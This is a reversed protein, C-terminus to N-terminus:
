FGDTFVGNELVTFGKREPASLQNDDLPIISKTPQSSLPLIYTMNRIITDPKPNVEMPLVRDIESRDILSIFYYPSPKIRPKTDLWYDNIESDTLGLKKWLDNRLYEELKSGEIIFGREPRKFDNRLFEYPIYRLKQGDLATLTGDPSALVNWSKKSLFLSSSLIPSKVEVSVQTQKQPYLYIYPSEMVGAIYFDTCRGRFGFLYVSDWDAKNTLLPEMLGAWEVPGTGSPSVDGYQDIMQEYRERYYKELYKKVSLKAIHRFMALDRPFEGLPYRSFYTGDEFVATARANYVAAYYDDLSPYLGPNITTFPWSWVNYSTRMYEMIRFYSPLTNYIVDNLIRVGESSPVTYNDSVFTGSHPPHERLDLGRLFVLYRPRDATTVEFGPDTFPDELYLQVVATLGGGLNTRYKLVESPDRTGDLVIHVPFGLSYDSERIVKNPLKTNESCVEMAENPTQRSNVTSILTPSPEPAIPAPASCSGTFGQVGPLSSLTFKTVEVGTFTQILQLILWAIALFLVGLLGWTVTQHAQQVAKAEGASTLYKLGAIVLVVLLAIYGLPVAVCVVRAFIYEILPIGAPGGGGQAFVPFILPLLLLISILSLLIKLYRSM